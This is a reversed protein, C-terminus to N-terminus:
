DRDVIAFARASFGSDEKPEPWTAVILAGTPPVRHLSDLMELQWRDAALISTEAPASDGGVVAGTTTTDPGIATIPIAM